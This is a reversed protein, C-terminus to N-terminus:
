DGSVAPRLDERVAALLRLAEAERAHALDLWHERGQCYRDHCAGCCGNVCRGERSSRLSGGCVKCYLMSSVGVEEPGVLKRRRDLGAFQDSWRVAPPGAQM